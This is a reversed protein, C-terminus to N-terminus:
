MGRGDAKSSCQGSFSLAPHEARSHPVHLAYQAISTPPALTTTVATTSAFKYPLWDAPTRAGFVLRGVEEVETRFCQSKIRRHEFKRPRLLTKHPLESWRLGVEAAEHVPVVCPSDFSSHVYTGLLKFGRQRRMWPFPNYM